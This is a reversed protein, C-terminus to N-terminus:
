TTDFEKVVGHVTVQWARRDISDRQCSYQLPNGNREGPSGGSGPILTEDEINCILEKGSLWWPLWAQQWQGKIM